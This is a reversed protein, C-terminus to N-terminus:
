PLDENPHGQTRSALLPAHTNLCATHHPHVTEVDDATVTVTVHGGRVVRGRILLAYRTVRMVPRHHCPVHAALYDVVPIHTGRTRYYVISM